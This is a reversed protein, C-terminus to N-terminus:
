LLLHLIVWINLMQLFFCTASFMCLISEWHQPNQIVLSTVGLFNICDCFLDSRLKLLFRFVIVELFLRLSLNSSMLWMWVKKPSIPKSSISTWLNLSTFFSRYETFLSFMISSLIFWVRSSAMTTMIFAFIFEM